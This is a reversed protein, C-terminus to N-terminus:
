FLLVRYCVSLGNEFWMNKLADPEYDECIRRATEPVNLGEHFHYHMIYRYHEAIDNM